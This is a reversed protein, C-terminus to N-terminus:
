VPNIGIFCLFCFVFIRDNPFVESSGSFESQFGLLFVPVIRAYPSRRGAPLPDMTSSTLASSAPRAWRWSSSSSACRARCQEGRDARGGGKFLRRRRRRTGTRSRRIFPAWQARRTIETTHVQRRDRLSTFTKTKKKTKM